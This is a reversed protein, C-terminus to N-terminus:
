IDELGKEDTVRDDQRTQERKAQKVLRFSVKLLYGQRRMYPKQKM